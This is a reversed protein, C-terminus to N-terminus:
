KINYQHACHSIKLPKRRRLRNFFSNKKKVSYIYVRYVAVVVHTYIIPICKWLNRVVRKIFMRHLVYTYIIRRHTYPLRQLIYYYLRICLIYKFIYLRAFVNLVCYYYNNNLIYLYHIAYKVACYYCM